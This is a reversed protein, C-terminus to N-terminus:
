LRSKVSRERCPSAEAKWCVTQTQWSFVGSLGKSLFSILGSSRLPYWGQINVPLVSGSASYGINQDGSTFLHSKPFTGWAPFSEPCFPLPCWLILHSSPMVSPIFTFKPLSWSITLSLSAWPTAFLRVCSPSHVAAVHWLRATLGPTIDELLWAKEEWLKMRQTCGTGLTEQKDLTPVQWWM